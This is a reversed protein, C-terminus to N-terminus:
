PKIIFSPIHSWPFKEIKVKKDKFFDDAAKTEGPFTGYDDFAIIGGRVVRDYLTELIIKAPEYIDTDIHLLAIKLHPNDKLYKPVTKLIDGSVLEINKIGKLEFIKYLDTQSIPQGGSVKIFKDLYKKDEEFNTQPIKGFTDFGIIKRAHAPEFLHRFTAFQILSNGKFVGCEVIAGPLNKINEYLKYHALIKGLRSPDSTLMFQNEFEIVNPASNEKKIKQKPPM